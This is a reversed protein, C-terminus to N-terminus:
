FIKSLGVIKKSTACLSVLKKHKHSKKDNNSNESIDEKPLELIDQTKTSEIKDVDKLKKTMVNTRTTRLTDLSKSATNLQKDM